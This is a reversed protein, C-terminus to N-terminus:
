VKAEIMLLRYPSPPDRMTKLLTDSVWHSDEELNYFYTDIGFFGDLLHTIVHLMKTKYGQPLASLDHVTAVGERQLENTLEHLIRRNKLIAKQLRDDFDPDGAAPSADQVVDIQSYRVLQYREFFQLVKAECSEFDTGKVLIEHKYVNKQLDKERSLIDTLPM